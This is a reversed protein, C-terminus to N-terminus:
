IEPRLISNETTKQQRKRCGSCGTTMHGTGGKETVEMEMRNNIFFLSGENSTWWGEIVTREIKNGTLSVTLMVIPNKEMASFTYDRDKM